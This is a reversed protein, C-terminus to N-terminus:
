TPPTLAARSDQSFGRSNVTQLPSPVGFMAGASFARRPPRHELARSLLHM